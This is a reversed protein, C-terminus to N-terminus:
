VIGAEADDIVYDAAALLSAAAYVRDPDDHISTISAIPPQKLLLTTQGDKTSHYETVTAQELKRNCHQNCFEDVVLILRTLETDHATGTVNKFTKCNALTTLSM